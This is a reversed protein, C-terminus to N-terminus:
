FPFIFISNFQISNSLLATPLLKLFGDSATAQLQEKSFTNKSIKCFECSFVQAKILFSVRTVAQKVFYVPLGVLHM